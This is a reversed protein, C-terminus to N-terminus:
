ATVTASAPSREGTGLRRQAGKAIEKQLWPAFDDPAGGGHFHSTRHFRAVALSSGVFRQRAQSCAPVPETSIQNAIGLRKLMNSFALSSYRHEVCRLDSRPGCQQAKSQDTRAWTSRKPLFAIACRLLLSKLVARHFCPRCLGHLWMTPPCVRPFRAVLLLRASPLATVVITLRAALSKM